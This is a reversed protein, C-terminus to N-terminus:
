HYVMRQIGTKLFLISQRLKVTVFTIASNYSVDKITEATYDKGNVTYTVNNPPVTGVTPEGNSVKNETVMTVSQAPLKGDSAVIVDISYPDVFSGGDSTGNIM